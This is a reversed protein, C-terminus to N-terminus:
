SIEVPFLDKLFQNQEFETKIQKLFDKAIPRTHSFIGITVEPDNLIDQISLGFTITTSKYHERAWLDLHGNPSAQVERCRDYLWDRDMDPRKCAYVLLFFLDNKALWRLKGKHQERMAERYVLNALDRPLKRCDLKEVDADSVEFAKREAERRALEALIKNLEVLDSHSM